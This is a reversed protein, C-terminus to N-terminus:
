EMGLKTRDILGMSEVRKKGSLKTLVKLEWKAMQRAQREGLEHDLGLLHLAGHTLLIDLEWAASHGLDRAQKKLTPLCIILEGILGTKRFPDETPFSLVDTPYYKGRYSGNLETMAPRGILAFDVSWNAQPGLRKLTPFSQIIDLIQDLRRTALQNWERATREKEKKRAIKM